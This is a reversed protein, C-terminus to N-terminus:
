RLADALVCIYLYNMSAQKSAQVYTHTFYRTWYGVFPDLNRSAGLAALGEGRLWYVESVGRVSSGQLGFM